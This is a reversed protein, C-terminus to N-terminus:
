SEAARKARKKMIRERNKLYYERNYDRQKDGWEPDKEKRSEKAEKIKLKNKLYYERQYALRAERHEQYYKQKLEDAM